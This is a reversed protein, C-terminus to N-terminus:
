GPAALPERFADAIFTVVALALFVVALVKAGDLMVGGLLGYGFVAAAMAALLFLTAIRLM